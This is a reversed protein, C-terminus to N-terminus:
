CATLIGGPFVFALIDRWKIHILNIEMGPKWLLYSDVSAKFEDVTLRIDFQKADTVTFGEKRIDSFDM